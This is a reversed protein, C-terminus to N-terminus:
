PGTGAIRRARWRGPPMRAWRRFARTFASCESYALADAIRSVDMTTDELLQRAIEFRCEEALCRFSTGHLKLRRHLTRSTTSFLAAVQDARCHSTLLASRLVGRVLSAFDDGQRADMDEIQRRLLRRLEPDDVPLSRSLWRAKFVVANQEADFQLPARFFRRHPGVDTPRRHAFRIEVPSWDPGCLTCLVNFAIALAADGIQDTAETRRAHIAYGFTAMDGDTSLTVGAGRVHLHMFREVSRLAAGVDTEYRALLGVLGLSHLGAERGILLGFHRCGTREVCVSVLHSRKEYSLRNDPDDFVGVDIGADALVRSPEFGLGRLVEPIALITAVRVSGDPQLREPGRPTAASV